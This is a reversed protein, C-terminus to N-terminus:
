QLKENNSEKIKKKFAWYKALADLALWEYRPDKEQRYVGAFHKFLKYYLAAHDLDFSSKTKNIFNM